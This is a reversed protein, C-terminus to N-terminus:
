LVVTCVWWGGVRVLAKVAVSKGRWKAKYVIAFGGGGIRKGFELESVDIDEWGAKSDSEEEHKSM